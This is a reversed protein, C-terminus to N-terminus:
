KQVIGKLIECLEVIRRKKDKWLNINTRIEDQDNTYKGSWWKDISEDCMRESAEQMMKILQRDSNSEM